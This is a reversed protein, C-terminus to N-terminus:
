KIVQVVNNNVVFKVDSAKEILDLIYNFNDFRKLEGSFLVDRAQPSLYFVTFDYWRSLTTLMDELRKKKFVYKGDKWAVFEDVDVLSETVIDKQKDYSIHMGPALTYSRGSRTYEVQVKGSILTTSENTEDPYCAIGFSTGLVTIKQNGARVVFPRGSDKEVEFYAEGELFVEREDSPFAVPYQLSSGSNVWVKTGDELTIRYEGGRPVTLKNRESKEKERVVSQLPLYSLAASDVVIHSGASGGFRYNDGARLEHETGDALELIASSKGHVINKSIQVPLDEAGNQLYLMMCCGFLLMVVAAAGTWRLRYTRLELRRQKQIHAEFQKWAFGIEPVSVSPRETSLQMRRMSEFYARHEESGAFWDAFLKEESPTLRGAIKRTIITASIEGHKM